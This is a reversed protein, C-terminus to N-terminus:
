PRKLASAFWWLLPIALIIEVFTGVTVDQAFGEHAVAESLGSPTFILYDAGPAFTQQIGLVALTGLVFFVARHHITKWAIATAVIGLVLPLLILFSVYPGNM